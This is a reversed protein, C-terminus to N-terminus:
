SDAEGSNEPFDARILLLYADETQIESTRDLKDAYDCLGEEARKAAIYGLHMELPMLAGLTKIAVDHAQWSRIIPGVKEMYNPGPITEIQDNLGQCTEQLRERLADQDFNPNHIAALATRAAHEYDAAQRAADIDTVYSVESSHVASSSAVQNIM